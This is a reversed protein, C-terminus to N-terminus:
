MIENTQFSLLREEFASTRLKLRQPVLVAAFIGIPVRSANRYLRFLLTGTGAARLDLNSFLLFDASAPPTNAPRNM